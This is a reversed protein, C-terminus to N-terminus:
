VNRYTIVTKWLSKAKYDININPRSRHLFYKKEYRELLTESIHKRIKRLGKM